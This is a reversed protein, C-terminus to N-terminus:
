NNAPAASIDALTEGTNLETDKALDGLSVIGVVTEDEVVPLRRVNQERMLQLARDLDDDPTVCTPAGTFVESITTNGDLDEALVRVALDRDTLIGTLRGDSTVIVDGIEHEAMLRAAESVPQDIEVTIPADNMVKQLSTM